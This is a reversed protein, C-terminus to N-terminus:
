EGVSEVPAGSAIAPPKKLLFIFPLMMVFCWMIFDYANVFAAMQAQQGVTQALIAIGEPSQPTLNIHQLYQYTTPKFPNIWRGLQNWAVQGSRTYVTIVIAIGISSGLTRLLSFIGAAEARLKPALTSFAIQSLPAFIFGLGFGQLLQPWVLGWIDVNIPYHSAVNCAFINIFTGFTILLRQDIKQALKAVILMAVMSSIGRPAMVLGATLVPFNLLSVLMLPQIVMASFMGLAFIGIVLSSLTFNSDKFISLDFLPHVKKHRCHVIFGILGLISILASLNISYSEFWDSQNGRDMIFQFASIFLSLFIFGRWDMTREKRDSDPVVRWVLLWTFIGIPLNVYFTWRWSSVETLYGGLTPGLIPGLMVGIGWIAMAMGRQQPPFITTLIAQSLPVLAAGFVGQLLRFAILENLYTSAGCFASAIVFGGISLLLYKKQGLRDTFYGTLPM